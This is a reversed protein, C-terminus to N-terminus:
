AAKWWMVIRYVVDAVAALMALGAIGTFAKAVKPAVSSKNLGEAVGRAVLWAALLWWLEHHRCAIVVVVLLPLGIMWKPTENM